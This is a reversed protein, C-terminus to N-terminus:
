KQLNLKMKLINIQMKDEECLFPQQCIYNTESFFYVNNFFCLWSHHFSSECLLSTITQTIIASIFCFNCYAWLLFLIVMLIHYVSRKIGRYLDESSPLFSLGPNLGM